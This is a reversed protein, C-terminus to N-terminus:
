KIAELLVNKKWTNRTKHMLFLNGHSDLILIGSKVAGLSIIDGRTLPPGNKPYCVGSPEFKPVDYFALTSKIKIAAMLRKNKKDFAMADGANHALTRVNEAGAWIIDKGDAAAFLSGDDNCLTIRDPVFEPLLESERMPTTQGDQLNFFLVKGKGAAALTIGDDAAALLGGKFPTSLIVPDTALNQANFVYIKNSEATKVALRNDPTAALGTIKSGFDPTESERAGSTLNLIFMRTTQKLLPQTEQICAVSDTGPLFIFRSIRTEPIEVIRICKFNYTNILALRSSFPGNAAGAVEAIALVSGDSSFVADPLRPGGAGEFYWKAKWEINKGKDAIKAAFCDAPTNELLNASPNSEIIINNRTDEVKPRDKEWDTDKIKLGKYTSDRRVSDDAAHVPWLGALLIAAYFFAKLM